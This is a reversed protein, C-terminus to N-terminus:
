RPVSGAVQTRKLRPSGVDELGTRWYDQDLGVVGMCAGAWNRNLFLADDFDLM